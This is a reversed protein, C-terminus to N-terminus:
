RSEGGQIAAPLELQLQKLTPADVAGSVPIGQKQQYARLAAETQANLEGDVPGAYVGETKLREQVLKLQDKTLLQQQGPRPEGTTGVEVLIPCLWLWSGMLVAVLASMYM